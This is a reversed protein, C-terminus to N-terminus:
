VQVGKLQHVAADACVVEVPCDPRPYVMVSYIETTIQAIAVTRVKTSSARPCLTALPSM